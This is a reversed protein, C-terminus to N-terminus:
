TLKFIIVHNILDEMNYDKGNPKLSFVAVAFQDRLIGYIKMERWFLGYIMRLNMRDQHACTVQCNTRKEAQTIKKQM